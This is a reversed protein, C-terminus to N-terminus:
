HQDGHHRVPLFSLSIVWYISETVWCIKNNLRLSNIFIFLQFQARLARSPNFPSSYSIYETVRLVGMQFVSYTKLEYIALNLQMFM